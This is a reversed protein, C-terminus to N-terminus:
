KVGGINYKTGDIEIQAEPQIARLMEKSTVLNRFSFCAFYPQMRFKRSILGNTIILDKGNESKFISAAAHVNGLLWDGQQVPMKDLSYYILNNFKQQLINQSIATICTILCFVATIIRKM